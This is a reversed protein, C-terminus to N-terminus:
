GEVDLRQPGAVAPVLQKIFRMAQQVQLLQTQLTSSQARAALIIEQHLKLIEQLTERVQNRFHFDQRSATEGQQQDASELVRRILVTKQDLYQLWGEGKAFWQERLCSQELDKLKHLVTLM